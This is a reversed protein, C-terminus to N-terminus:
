PVWDSSLQSLFGIDFLISRDGATSTVPLVSALKMPLAEEIIVVM